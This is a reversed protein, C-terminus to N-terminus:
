RVFAAVRAKEVALHQNGRRRHLVVTKRAAHDVDAGMRGLAGHTDHHVLGGGVDAEGVQQHLEVDDRGFGDLQRAAGVAHLNELAPRDLGLAAEDQVAGIEEDLVGRQRDVVAYTKRRRQINQLRDRLAGSRGARHQRQTVGAPSRALELVLHLGVAPQM